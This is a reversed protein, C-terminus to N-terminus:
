RIASVSRASVRASASKPRAMRSRAPLFLYWRSSASYRTVGPVQPTSPERARRLNAVLKDERRRTRCTGTDSPVPLIRAAPTTSTAAPTRLPLPASPCKVSGDALGDDSGHCRLDGGVDQPSAGQ